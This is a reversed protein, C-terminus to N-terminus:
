RVLKEKLYRRLARLFPMPPLSTIIRLDEVLSSREDLFRFIRQIPNHTFMAEFIPRAQEPEYALIRLLLADYFRRRAQEKPLHFPHKHQLLSQVIAESDAQIRAFAYGSSPKVRGGRTGIALWREGLRRPFSFDTMPIVGNEKHVVSYSAEGLIRDLYNQLSAQYAEEELLDCSFVTYEVLAQRESFPLIYYFTLGGQQDTRLDFLTATCPNFVAQVTEVKWGEFHQKIMLHRAPDFEFKKPDFRSDFVWHARYQQGEALFGLGDKTEDVEQVEARIMEINPFEGLVQRAHRYFDLGRLM